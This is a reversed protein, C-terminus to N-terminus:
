FGHIPAFHLLHFRRHVRIFAAPCEKCFRRAIAVVDNSPNHPDSRDELRLGWEQMEHGYVASTMWAM